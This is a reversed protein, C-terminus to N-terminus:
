VCAVGAAREQQPDFVGIALAGGFGGDLHDEVAQLPQAEFGVRFGYELVLARITM